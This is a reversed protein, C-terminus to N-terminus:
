RQQEHILLDLPAFGAMRSRLDAGQEALLAPSARRLYLKVRAATAGALTFEFVRPQDPWLRSDQVQATARWFPVSWQPEGGKAGQLAAPLSPGGFKRGIVAGAQAQGDLWEERPLLNAAEPTGPGVPEVVLLLRKLGHGTPIAHGAGRNELTVTVQLSDGTRRTVMHMAIAERMFAADESGAFRHKHVESLPRFRTGASAIETGRNKRDDGRVDDLTYAPMHCSQCERYDPGPRAFRTQRWESYTGQGLIGNDLTHEHCGACLAGTQFLPNYSAGMFLYSVDPLPGFVHKVNGPVREDASNPRHMRISGALGPKEPNPVAGIKHCFDCHNGEQHVGKADLLTTGALHFDTLASALSPSHCPTCDDRTQGAALASPRADQEFANHVLPNRAMTAHRSVKWEDFTQRHCNGCQLHKGADYSSNPETAPPQPKPWVYEYERYDRPDLPRLVITALAARSKPAGPGVATFASERDLTIAGNFYGLKGAAVLTLQEIRELSLKFFGRADTTTEIEGRARRKVAAGAIGRGEEDVVRGWLTYPRGEPAQRTEEYTLVRGELPRDETYPWLAAEGEEVASEGFPLTDHYYRVFIRRRDQSFELWAGGGNSIGRTLDLCSWITFWRGDDLRRGEGVASWAGGGRQEDSGWSVYHIRNGRVQVDLAYRFRGFAYRQHWDPPGLSSTESPRTAGTQADFAFFDYRPARPWARLHASWEALRAYDIPDYSSHYHPVRPDLWIVLALLPLLAFFGITAAKNM